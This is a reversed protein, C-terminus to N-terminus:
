TQYVDKGRCTRLTHVNSYHYSPAMEHQLSLVFVSLNFSRKLFSGLEIGVDSHYMVRRMIQCIGKMPTYVGRREKNGGSM